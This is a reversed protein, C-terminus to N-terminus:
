KFLGGKEEWLANLHTELVALSSSNRIRYTAKKRKEELPMQSLIRQKAAEKTFGDRAMLRQLQVSPRTDVLWVEDMLADWGTELLLPVDYIMAKVGKEEAVKTDEEMRQLILPHMIADLEEIKEPFQFVIEGLRPRNLSGDEKIIDHGFHEALASLGVSGPAVVERAVQDADWFTVGKEKLWNLITSKGSAIGGTLGIKYM